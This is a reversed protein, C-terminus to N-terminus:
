KSSLARSHSALLTGSDSSFGARQSLSCRARARIPSGCGQDPELRIGINMLSNNDGDPPQFRCNIEGGSHLIPQFSNWIRFDKFQCSVLVTDEHSMVASSHNLM